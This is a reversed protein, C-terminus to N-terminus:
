LMKYELPRVSNIQAFHKDQTILTRNNEMVCQAIYIDILPPNVGKRGLTFALEAVLDWTTSLVNFDLFTRKLNNFDKKSRTGRLLEVIIVDILCVQNKQILPEAMQLIKQNKREIEIWISSDFVFKDKM